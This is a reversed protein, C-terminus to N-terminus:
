KIVWDTSVQTSELWFKGFEDYIAEMKKNAAVAEDSLKDEAPWYKDRIASSEFYLLEGIQYKKEGRDGSLVFMKTGPYNKEFVPIFKNVYFDLFQNMTVDPQLTMTYSRVALVAGKKLTQAPLQTVSFGLMLILLVLTKTKM